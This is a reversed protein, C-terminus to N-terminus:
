AAQEFVRELWWTDDEPVCYLFYLHRPKDTTEVICHRRLEPDPKRWSNCTEYEFFIGSVTYTYGRATFAAPVGDRLTVDVPEPPDLRRSTM